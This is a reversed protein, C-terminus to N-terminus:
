FWCGLGFLAVSRLFFYRGFGIQSDYNKRRFTLGEASGDSRALLAEPHRNKWIFLILSVFTLSM